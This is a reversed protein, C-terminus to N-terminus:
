AMACIVNKVFTTFKQEAQEKDDMFILLTDSNPFEDDIFHKFFVYAGTEKQHYLAVEHLITRFNMEENYANARLIDTANARNTFFSRTIMKKTGNETHRM